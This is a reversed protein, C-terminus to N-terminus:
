LKAAKGDRWSAAAEVAAAVRDLAAMEHGSLEFTYLPELDARM